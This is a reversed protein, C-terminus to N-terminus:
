DEFFQFARLKASRSKFNLGVEEDSPLIPHRTVITGLEDHRWDVFTHKVIRDELSHYDVVVIVAGQAALTRCANLGNTLVDLEKNVYIRLAQFVRRAPHGGMKRQVPAPLIDRILSVLQGTTEIRGYKTRQKDIGCAIKWAFKEEGYRSFIDCLEKVSRSNVVDAATEDSGQDMRMDLPADNQFSFGREPEVLQMNSVGLDFMFASVKGILDYPELLSEIDSFNGHLPIFRNKFELLRESSRRLAETDQDIGFLLIDSHERLIKSAYGGLGLTCDVVVNLNSARGVYEAVENLMVPIHTSTLPAVDDNLNQQREDDAEM